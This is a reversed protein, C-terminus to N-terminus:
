EDPYEPFDPSELEPYEPSELEPYAPSELEPFVGCCFYEPFFCGKLGWL